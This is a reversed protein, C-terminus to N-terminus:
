HRRCLARASPCLALGGRSTVRLEAPMMRGTDLVADVTEDLPIPNRYGGLILDACVFAASAAAANRTHCPIEVIGQVLDCVSGMTNQFAIAAADLAQGPDGGAIEVVAAAAMAGAAGIEVQCGAVEAAFTAREAVILGVVGAAFLAHILQEDALNREEALTTLVGPLVGASGGTPAACVVGMSSNVHMAALARAAARAHIGGVALRGEAEAAFVDAATATLLQMRDGEGALGQRVSEAMVRYRDMMEAATEASSRGLLRSEYVLGAHGLSWKQERALTLAEAASRFLSHGRIVLFQPQAQWVRKVAPVTTMLKRVSEGMPEPTSFCLLAHEGVTEAKLTFGPPFEKKVLDSVTDKETQRIELLLEHHRGDLHVPWDELRHIVFTGGGTSIAWVRLDDGAISRVEVEATNPHDAGPLTACRFEVNLGRLRAIERANLFDDSVIPWGLLGALLARDVGQQVYVQGYSGSPDFTVRAAAPEAGLLDRIMAGIRHSAATHSSSPGHMVPGLVDNFISFASM